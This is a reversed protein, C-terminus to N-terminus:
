GRTSKRAITDDNEELSIRSGVIPDLVRNASIMNAGEVAGSFSLNNKIAYRLM